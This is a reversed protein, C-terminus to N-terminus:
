LTKIEEEKLFFFSNDHYNLLWLNMDRELIYKENIQKATPVKFYYAIVKKSENNLEQYSKTATIVEFTLKSIFEYYEKPINRKNITPFIDLAFIEKISYKSKYLDFIKRKNALSSNTIEAVYNIIDDYDIFINQYYEINDNKNETIKNYAILYEEKTLHEKLYHLLTIIDPDLPTLDMNELQKISYKKTTEKTERELKQKITNKQSM